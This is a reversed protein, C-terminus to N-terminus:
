GAALVPVAGNVRGSTAQTLGTVGQATGAELDLGARHAAVAAAVREASWGTRARIQRPVAPLADGYLARLAAANAVAAPRRAGGAAPASVGEEVVTPQATPQATPVTTAPRTSRGAPRDGPQGAPLPRDVPPPLAPVALPVPVAVATVTRIRGALEVLSVSAVVVMGDISLPLLYPAAGTEGYRFCIAVQHWYSIWAAIGAIGIMAALRVAALARRHIPVRSILEVTLLFALPPWASISESILNDRAHLVNGVISAAIALALVGRVAWRVRRLQVLPVAIV